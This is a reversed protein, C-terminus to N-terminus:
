FCFCAVINAWGQPFAEAPEGAASIQYAQWYGASSRYYYFSRTWWGYAEDEVGARTFVRSGGNAFYMYQFNADNTAYSAGM